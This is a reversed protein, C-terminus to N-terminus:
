DCARGAKVPPGCMLWVHSFAAESGLLLSANVRGLSSVEKLLSRLASLHFKQVGDRKYQERQGSGRLSGICGQKGRETVVIVELIRCTLALKKDCPLVACHLRDKRAIAFDDAAIGIILANEVEGIWLLDRDARDSRPLDSRGIIRDRPVIIIPCGVEVVLLVGNSSLDDRNLGRVFITLLDDGIGILDCRIAGSWRADLGARTYEGVFIARHISGCVSASNVAAPLRSSVAPDEWTLGWTM